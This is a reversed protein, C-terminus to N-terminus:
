SHAFADRGLPYDALVSKLKDINALTDKCINEKNVISRSLSNDSEPFPNDMGLLGYLLTHLLKGNYKEYGGETIIGLKGSYKEALKTAIYYYSSSTYKLGVVPDSHHSDFGNCGIVFDPDFEDALPFLIKECIMKFEKDGAGNPLCLNASYGMGSSRGIQHMFGEHPYFGDPSRHISITLVSPDDYFVSMTGNAAHGDWDIIMIKNLGQKQLWRAAIASNNLICYGGCKDRFAHHGPPRILAYSFEKGHIVQRCTEIAGGASHIAANWTGKQVYTSDGLFGGGRECYSIMFDIYPKDHISLIDDLSAPDFGETLEIYDLIDTRNMIYKISSEVREPNERSTSEVRHIKHLPTYILSGKKVQSIVIWRM